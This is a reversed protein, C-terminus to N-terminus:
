CFGDNKSCIVVSWRRTPACRTRRTTRRDVMKLWTKLWKEGNKWDFSTMAPWTHVKQAPFCEINSTVRAPGYCCPARVCFMLTKWQFNMTKLLPFGGNREYAWRMRWTQLLACWGSCAAFTMMEFACNMMKFAFNRSNSVCNMMKFAFNRSNSVCNMMNFAFHRTKSVCNMMKFAFNRTKSVCNM